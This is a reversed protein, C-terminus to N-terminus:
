LQNTDIYKLNASLTDEITPVSSSAGKRSVAISSAISAVRLSEDARKGEAASAIFFGTFTDGAATTDVRRVEYIGHALTEGPDKYLVGDRGLTLVIASAPFMASMVGLIEAPSTKGSMGAGEVENVLFYDVLSLPYKKIGEDFPALNFAIRLRREAAKKMIYPLNNVENQLVLFDGEGFPELARDIFNEGLEHNAGAHLIICNEGSSNVQIIAHGTTSGSTDTLEVNVGADKMIKVMGLGDQGTRGAHWVRGGARALAVSQNLGKGGPFVALAKSSITEGPRVFHEVDYVYDINISGINLIKKM